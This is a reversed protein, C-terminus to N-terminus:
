HPSNTPAPVLVPDMPNIEGPPRPPPGGPILVPDMPCVDGGSPALRLPLQDLCPRFRRSRAASFM